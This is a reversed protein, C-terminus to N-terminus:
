CCCCAPHWRLVRADHCFQQDDERPGGETSGRPFLVVLLFCIPFGPTEVVTTTWRQDSVKMCSTTTTTTTTTSVLSHEQMWGWVNKHRDATWGLQQTYNWSPWWRQRSYYQYNSLWRPFFQNRCNNKGLVLLLFFVLFM